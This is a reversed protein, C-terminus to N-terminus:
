SPTGPQTSSPAGPSPALPTAPGQESAPSALLASGILALLLLLGALEFALIYQTMLQLGIPAVTSQQVLGGTAEARLAWDPLALQGLTGLLLVLLGLPLAYGLFQNHLGTLVPGASIRNTLMVGFILLILVGGVYIVIQTVGLFDAGSLVYIAAVGLFCFILSFAAYLLNRTFLIVLAAALTLAAFAYFLFQVM